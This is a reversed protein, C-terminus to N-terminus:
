GSRGGQMCRTCGETGQALFVKETGKAKWCGERRRAPAEPIDLASREAGRKTRSENMRVLHAAKTQRGKNDPKTKSEKGM